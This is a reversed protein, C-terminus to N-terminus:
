KVAAWGSVPSYRITFWISNSDSNNDEASQTRYRYGGTIYFPRSFRYTIGASISYYERDETYVGDGSLNFQAEFNIQHGWVVNFDSQYRVDGSGSSAYGNGAFFTFNNRDDVIHTITISSNGDRNTGDAGDTQAFGLVLDYRTTDTYDWGYGINAGTTTTSVGEDSEFESGNFNLSISSTESLGYAWGMALSNNTYETLSVTDYSVDEFSLNAYVSNREDVQYNFSPLITTTQKEGDELRGTDLQESATTPVIRYAANLDATWREGVRTYIGYIGYDQADDISSESYRTTNGGLGLITNSVEDFGRFEGSAGAQVSTTEIPDDESLRFNDEWGLESEVTYDNGWQYRSSASFSLFASCCLTFLLFKRM